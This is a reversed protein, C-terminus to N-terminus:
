PVPEQPNLNAIMEHPIEALRAHLEQAALHMVDDLNPEEHEAEAEREAWRWVADVLDVGVVRKGRVKFRRLEGAPAQVRMWWGTGDRVHAVVCPTHLRARAEIPTLSPSAQPDDELRLLPADTPILHILRAPEASPTTPNPLSITVLDIM